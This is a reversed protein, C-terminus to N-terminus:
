SHAGNRDARAPAEGQLAAAASRARAGFDELTRALRLSKGQAAEKAERAVRKGTRVAANKARRIGSKAKAVPHDARARLSRALESLASVAEIVADLVPKTAAASAPRSRSRRSATM